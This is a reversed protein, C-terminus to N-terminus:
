EEEKWEGGWERCTVIDHLTVSEKLYPDHFVYEVRAVWPGGFRYDPEDHVEIIMGRVGDERVVMQGIRPRDEVPWYEIVGESLDLVREIDHSSKVEYYEVHKSTWILKASYGFPRLTAFAESDPECVVIWKM